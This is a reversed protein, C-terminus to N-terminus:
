ASAGKRAPRYNGAPTRFAINLRNWTNISAVALTLNVLEEDTFQTHVREYVEDPVHSDAVLTVAETWELAARERESYCTAERWSALLYLRQESEGEARADKTHMDLCFSCGNLQSARTQVLRLLSLELGCHEVYEEFQLMAQRAKPAAIAYRIRNTM